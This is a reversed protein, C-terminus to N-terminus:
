GLQSGNKEELEEKHCCNKHAPFYKLYLLHLKTAGYGIFPIPALLIMLEDGCFHGGFFRIIFGIAAIFVIYLYVIYKM